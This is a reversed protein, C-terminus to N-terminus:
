ALCFSSTASFIANMSIVATLSTNEIQMFWNAILNMSSSYITTCCHGSDVIAQSGCHILRLILSYQSRLPLAALSYYWIAYTTGYLPDLNEISFLCIAQYVYKHM